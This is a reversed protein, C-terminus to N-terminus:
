LFRFGHKLILLTCAGLLDLFIDLITDKLNPYDSNFGLKKLVYNLYSNRHFLYEIIEWLIGVLFVIVLILLSSNIYYSLIIAILLGALFHSLEFFWYYKQGYKSLRSNVLYICILALFAFLIM